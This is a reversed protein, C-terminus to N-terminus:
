QLATRRVTIMGVFRFSSGLIGYSFSCVGSGREREFGSQFGRRINSLMRVSMGMSASASMSISASVRMSVPDTAPTMTQLEMKSKKAGYLPQWLYWIKTGDAVCSVTVYDDIHTPTVIPINGGGRRGLGEWPKPCEVGYGFWLTAKPVSDIELALNAQDADALHMGRQAADLLARLPANAPCYNCHFHLLNIKICPFVYFLVTSCSCCHAVTYSFPLLLM